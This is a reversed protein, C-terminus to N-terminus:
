EGKKFKKDIIKVWLVTVSNRYITYSLSMMFVDSINVSGYTFLVILYYKKSM